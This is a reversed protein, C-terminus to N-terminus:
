AWEEPIITQRGAFGAAIEHWWGIEIEGLEWCIYVRHGDRMAVWDVLGRDIDKVIVGIESIESLMLRMRQALERLQSELVRTDTYIADGDTTASRQMSQILSQVDLVTKKAERVDRLLTELRPITARAETLTFLRADTQEDAM